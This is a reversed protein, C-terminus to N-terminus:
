IKNIRVIKNEDYDHCEYTFNFLHEFDSNMYKQYPKLYTHNNYDTYYINFTNGKITIIAPSWNNKLIKSYEHPYKTPLIDCIHIGTNRDVIFPPVFYSTSLSM